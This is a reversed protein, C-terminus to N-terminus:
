SMTDPRNWVAEPSWVPHSVAYIFVVSEVTLQSSILLLLLLLLLLLQHCDDDNYAYDDDGNEDDLKASVLLKLSLDGLSDLGNIDVAFSALVIIDTCFNTIIQEM